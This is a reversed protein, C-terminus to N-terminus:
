RRCGSWECMLNGRDIHVDSTRIVKSPPEDLLLASDPPRKINTCVQITTIGASQAAQALIDPQGTQTAMLNSSQVTGTNSLSGQTQLIMGSQMPQAPKPAIPIHGPVGATPRPQITVPGATTRFMIQHPTSLPAQQLQMQIAHTQPRPAGAPLITVTQGVTGTSVQMVTTVPQQLTCVQLGGTPLTPAQLRAQVPGSTSPVPMSAQLQTASQLQAQLQAATPMEPTDPRDDQNSVRQRLLDAITGVGQARITDASITSSKSTTLTLTAPQSVATIHPAMTAALLPGQHWSVVPSAGPLSSSPTASPIIEVPPQWTTAQVIHGTSPVCNTPATNATNTAPLAPSHQATPAQSSVSQLAGNGAALKPGDCNVSHVTKSGVGSDSGKENDSIFGNELIKDGVNPSLKSTREGEGVLSDRDRLESEKAFNVVCDGNGIHNVLGNLTLSEKSLKPDLLQAIKAKKLEAASLSGLKKGRLEEESVDGNLLPKVCEQSEMTVVAPGNVHHHGGNRHEHISSIKSDKSSTLTQDSERVVSKDNIVAKDHTVGNDPKTHSQVNSVNNLVNAPRNEKCTDDQGNPGQVNSSDVAQSATQPPYTPLGPAPSAPQSPESTPSTDVPKLPPPLTSSSAIHQQLVDLGSNSVCTITAETSGPAAPSDACANMVREIRAQHQGDPVVTGALEAHACVELSYPAQSHPQGKGCKSGPSPPDSSAWSMQSDSNQAMVSAEATQAPPPTSVLTPQMLQMGQLNTVASQVPPAVYQAPVASMGQVQVSEAKSDQAPLLGQVGQLSSIADQDTPSVYQAPVGTLQTGAELGNQHQQINQNVKKALLSKIVQSDPSSGPTSGPARNPNVAEAASLQHQQQRQQVKALLAHQINPYQTPSLPGPKSTPTGPPTAAQLPSGPPPSHIM